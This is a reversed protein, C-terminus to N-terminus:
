SFVITDAPNLIPRVHRQVLDNLRTSIARDVQTRMDFRRSREGCVPRGRRTVDGTKARSGAVTLASLENTLEISNGASV